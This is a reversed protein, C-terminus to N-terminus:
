LRTILLEPYNVNRGKLGNTSLAVMIWHFPMGADRHVAQAPEVTRMVLDFWSTQLAFHIIFFSIMIQVKKSM